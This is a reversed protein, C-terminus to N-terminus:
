HRTALVTMVVVVLMLLLLLLLTSLTASPRQNSCFNFTVM